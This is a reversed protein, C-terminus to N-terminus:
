NSAAVPPAPCPRNAFTEGGTPIQEYCSLGCVRNEQYTYQLLYVAGNRPAFRISGECSGDGVEVNKTVWRTKTESRYRTVPRTCTRYVRNTGFGSGCDYTETGYEPVQQTYTEQVQRAEMHFFAAAVKATAAVPHVLVSDTRAQAGLRSPSVEDYARHEDIDVVERLSAGAVGDYTRRVKVIAHPEDSRPPQYQPV